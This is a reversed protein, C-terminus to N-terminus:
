IELASSKPSSKKESAPKSKFISTNSYGSSDQYIYVSANNISIRNINVNGSFLSFLNLSVDIDQAKLLDHKHQAWLSDRLLVDNLSVSIGPFGKLLTPEMSRATIKGNLNKNLQELISALVEKKNRNIYFAGALWTLIILGVFVSLIRLSIKLWRAM